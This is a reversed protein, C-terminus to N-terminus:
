QENWMGPADPWVTAPNYGLWSDATIVLETKFTPYSQEGKEDQSFIQEVVRMTNRNGTGDELTVLDGLYYDQNYVYGSNKSVEGDLAFIPTNNRLYEHGKATRYEARQASTLGSPETIEIPVFVRDWQTPDNLFVHTGGYSSYVSVHTVQDQISSISSLSNINDLDPSFIVTPNATQDISRNTGTYANSYVVGNLGTAYMRYGLSYTDMVSKIESWATSPRPVVWTVVDVSAPIGDAPYGVRSKSINSLRDNTYLGTTPNISRDILFNLLNLPTYSLTWPADPNVAGGASPWALRGTLVKEVSRGSLKLIRRREEDTTAIVTGIQMVRDSLNHMLYVGRRFRGRNASTDATVVQFDGLDNFRECWVISDFDDIVVRKRFTNDLAYIEM